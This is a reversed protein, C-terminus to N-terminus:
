KIFRKAEEASVPPSFYFGQTEQCNESLLRNLQEENEVGESVTNIKLQQALLMLSKVIARSQNSHTVDSVFSRDIKITNIACTKLHKMSSYGTGFDDISISVGLERLAQLTDMIDQESEMLVTETVELDLCQPDIGTEEIVDKVTQIFTQRQQLQRVSVNVSMRIRSDEKEHWEKLQLCATKLVWEGLPIILGTEEALPIFEAPSIIGQQEHHWRVLAEFGVTEGSKVNIIPQYQLIFEENALAKRINDDLIVRKLTDEEMSHDYVILNDKGRDKIYYMATDAKKTLTNVTEDEGGRYMSVGISVSLHFTVEELVFPKKIAAILSEGISVAEEETVNPLMVMFEDGGVRAITHDDKLCAKFREGAEILLQDGVDHGMTDNVPKFGDLDKFLVALSKGEKQTYKMAQSLRDNFLSRNPLDTVQDYYAMEHIRKEYKKNESIDKGVGYIGVIEGNEYIPVNKMNFTLRQNYKNFLTCEYHQPVGKKVEEFHNLSKPLDEVSILSQFSLQKLEEDTYGTLKQVSENGGLYNGALDMAFIADSNYEYLSRYRQESKQLQKELRREKTVDKAMGYVGVFEGDVIIPVNTVSLRMQEGHKNIVEIEYMQTSGQKALSFHSETKEIDEPVIFPHFTKNLLEEESFGLMRQAGPNVEIFKGDNDISFIADSNNLFLSAYKEESKKLAVFQNERETVDRTIAMIYQVEGQENFIPSLTTEAIMGNREYVFRSSQKSLVVTKYKKIMDVSEREPLVDEIRKNMVDSTFGALQHAKTDAVVYTFTSEDHVELVFVAEDLHNIFQNFFFTHDISLKEDM